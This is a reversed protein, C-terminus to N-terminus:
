PTKYYYTVSGQSVEQGSINHRDKTVLLKDVNHRRTNVLTIEREVKLQFKLIVRFYFYIYSEDNQKQISKSRQQV